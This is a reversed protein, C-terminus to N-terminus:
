LAELEAKARDIMIDTGAEQFAEIAKLYMAKSVHPQGDKKLYRAYEMRTLGLDFPINLDRMNREAKQFATWAEETKGKEYDISARIRLFSAVAYKDESNKLNEGAKNIYEEAEKQEGLKLKCEAMNAHYYGLERKNPREKMLELGEKYIDVAKQYEEISRYTEGLNNMVRAVEQLNDARKYAEIGIDSYKVANDIDSKEHYANAIISAAKGTLDDDGEKQGIELALKCLIVSDENNGQRWSISGRGVECRGRLTQNDFNIVMKEAEAYKALAKEWKGKKTFIDGIKIIAEAKTSPSKIEDALKIVNELFMISDFWRGQINNIESLIYLLKVKLKITNRDSTTGEYEKLAELCIDSATKLDHKDFADKADKFYHAIDKM